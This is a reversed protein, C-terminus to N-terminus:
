EESSLSRKVSFVSCLVCVSVESVFGVSLTVCVVLFWIVLHPQAVDRELRQALFHAKWQGWFRM